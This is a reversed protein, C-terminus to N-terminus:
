REAMNQLLAHMAESALMETAHPHRTGAPLITLKGIDTRWLVDALDIRGDALVDMLGRQGDELGLTRLVSPKAVDSDVLLVTRDKEMAMSIALHAACFTKGEGPLASTVMILNTAGGAKPKAVPNVINALIHRKIRRFGEAIPTRETEPTIMNQRRLRDLDIKFIRPSRGEVPAAKPEAADAAEALSEQMLSDDRLSDPRQSSVAREILDPGLIDPTDTGAGAVSSKRNPQPMSGLKNAVREVISM